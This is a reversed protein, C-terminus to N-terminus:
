IKVLLHNGQQLVKFKETAFKAQKRCILVFKEYRRASVRTRVILLEV